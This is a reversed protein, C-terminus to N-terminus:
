GGRRALEVMRGPLLRIVRKMELSILLSSVAAAGM